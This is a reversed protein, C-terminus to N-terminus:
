FYDAQTERDAFGLRFSFGTNARPTLRPRKVRMKM